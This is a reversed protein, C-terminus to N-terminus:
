AASPWFIMGPSGVGPSQEPLWPQRGEAINREASPVRALLVESTQVLSAGAGAGVGSGEHKGSPSHAIPKRSPKSGAHQPTDTSCGSKELAQWCGFPLYPYGSAPSEHWFFGHKAVPFSQAPSRVPQQGPSLQLSIPTEPNMHVHTLRM